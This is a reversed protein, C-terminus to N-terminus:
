TRWRRRSLPHSPPPPAFRWARLGSVVYVGGHCDPVNRRPSLLCCVGGRALCTPLPVWPYVAPLRCLVGSVANLVRLFETDTSVVVAGISGAGPGLTAALKGMASLLKKLQSYPVYKAEWGACRPAACWLGCVVM